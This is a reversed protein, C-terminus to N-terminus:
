VQTQIMHLISDESTILGFFMHNTGSILFMFQAM